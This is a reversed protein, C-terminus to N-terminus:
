IETEKLKNYLLTQIEEYKPSNKDLYNLYGNDEVCIDTEETEDDYLLLFRKNEHMVTSMLIEEKGNELKYVREEIM